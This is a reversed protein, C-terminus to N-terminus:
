VEFSRRPYGESDEDQFGAIMSPTLIGIMFGAIGKRKLEM